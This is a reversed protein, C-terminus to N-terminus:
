YLCASARITFGDSNKFTEIDTIEGKERRMYGKQEVLSIFDEADVINYKEHM